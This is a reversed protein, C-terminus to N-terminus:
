FHSTVRIDMEEGEKEGEGEGEGEERKAGISVDEGEGRGVGSVKGERRDSPTGRPLKEAEQKESRLAETFSLPAGAPQWTAPSPSPSPSSSQLSPFDSSDM